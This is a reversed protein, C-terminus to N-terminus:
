FKTVGSAGTSGELASGGAKGDRVWVAGISRYASYLLSPVRARTEHDCDKSAHEPM